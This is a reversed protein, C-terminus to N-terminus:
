KSLYKDAFNMYQQWDYLTIDHKGERIHYGVYGMSPTHLPPVSQGSLGEVGFLNYVESAYVGSLFEGKPDAWLDESASAIYVPRPAILAILQHQDVPLARENKNYERFNTCFWHPFSSNIREVTEGFGRQSLAAGGCGSNNSVVIAFRSDLAGAWLAAKGLRSHGHLVVRKADMTKDTEVYDLIRSLGWAWVGIAGWEDPGPKQGEKYFLTALSESFGDAKDAYIQQYHATAVGYGRKLIEEIPWRGAQAGRIISEPAIGSQAAIVSATASIGGKVGGKQMWKEVQQPTLIAEDTHVSPNGQFNLGVFLPVRKANKPLYILVLISKSAAAGPFSIVVQKRIAMGNLANRDEEVVRYATAPMQKPTRGYVHTEFLSLVEPRRRNQWAAADEVEEGNELTLPDPLLLYAPVKSEDTHTVPQQGMLSLSLLCLSCFFLLPLPLPKSAM